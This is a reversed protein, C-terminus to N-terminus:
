ADEKKGADAAAGTPPPRGMRAILPVLAFSVVVGSTGAL